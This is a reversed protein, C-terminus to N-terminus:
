FTGSLGFLAGGATPALTPTVEAPAGLFWLLAAGSVAAGGVILLLNARGANQEVSAALERAAPADSAPVGNEGLLGQAETRDSSAQLGFVASGAWAVLGAAGVGVAVKRLPTFLSGEGAGAVAEAPQTGAPSVAAGGSSGPEDTVTLPALELPQSEYMVGAITSNALDVKVVSIRAFRVEVWKDFDAYGSKVIKLAHRGPALNSIPEKLPSKGVLRGDVWVEAGKEPLDVQIRGAYQAPLLLKYAAGRVGDILLEREGSLMETVRESERASKVLVRKLDISYAEGVGAVTGYVVEDARLKAAAAALCKVEGRCEGGVPRGASNLEVLTVGPLKKVEARLFGLLSAAVDEEVGLNDLPLVLVRRSAAGAPVSFLSATIGVLLVALFRPAFRLHPIM